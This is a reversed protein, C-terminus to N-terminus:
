LVFFMGGISTVSIMSMADTMNNMLPLTRESRTAMQTSSASSMKWMRVGSSPSAPNELETTMMIIPRNTTPPAINWVPSALIILLLIRFSAPLLSSRNSSSTMSTVDAMPANTLLVPVTASISGMTTLMAALAFVLELRRSMGSAKALLMPPMIVSMPVGGLRIMCSVSVPAPKSGNDKKENRGTPMMQTATPM